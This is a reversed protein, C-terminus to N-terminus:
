STGLLVDDECETDDIAYHLGLYDRLEKELRELARGKVEATSVDARDYDVERRPFTFQMSFACHVVFTFHAPVGTESDSRRGPSEKAM